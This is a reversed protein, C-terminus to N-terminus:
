VNGGGLPHGDKDLVESAALAEALRHEEGYYVARDWFRPRAIGSSRQRGSLNGNADEGTIEYLILDQLTVVDGEMGLV